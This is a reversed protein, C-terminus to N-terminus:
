VVAAAARDHVLRPSRPHAPSSLCDKGLFDCCAALATPSVAGACVGETRNWLCHRAVYFVTGILGPSGEHALYRLMRRALPVWVRKPHVDASLATDNRLDLGRLKGEPKIPFSLASPSWDMLGVTGLDDIRREIQSLRVRRKLLTLCERPHYHPQRDPTYRRREDIEHAACYIHLALADILDQTYAKWPLLLHPVLM